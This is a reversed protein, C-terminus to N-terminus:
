FKQVKQLITRKLTQMGFLPPVKFYRALDKMQKLTTNKAKVRRLAENNALSKLKKSSKSLKNLTAVDLHKLIEGASNNNLSIM